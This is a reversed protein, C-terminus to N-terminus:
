NKCTQIGSRLRYQGVTTTVRRKQMTEKQQQQQYAVVLGLEGGPCMARGGHAELAGWEFFIVESAVSRRGMGHAESRSQVQVARAQSRDLRGVAWCLPEGIPQKADSQRKPQEKKADTTRQVGAADSGSEM